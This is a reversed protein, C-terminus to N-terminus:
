NGSLIAREWQDLGDDPVVQGCSDCNVVPRPWLGAAYATKEYDDGAAYGFYFKESFRDGDEGAGAAGYSMGLAVIDDALTLSVGRHAAFLLALFVVREIGNNGDFLTNAEAETLGLADRAVDPILRPEGVFEYVPQGVGNLGVFVRPACHTASGTNEVQMSMGVQAAAQGAICAHSGCLNDENGSFWTGQNWSGWGVFGNILSNDVSDAYAWTVINSFLKVNLNPLSM